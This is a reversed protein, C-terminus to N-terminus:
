SNLQEALRALRGRLSGDIVSDGVRIMVGGILSKDLSATVNVEHGLRKKLAESLERTQADDLEFASVLEVESFKQQEAVLRHFLEHVVPLAMLRRKRAMEAFFMRQADGVVDGCLTALAEVKDDTGLDPRELHERVAPEEVAAAAMALAKEWEEYNGQDRACLFAAKAYPRAITTLEAM